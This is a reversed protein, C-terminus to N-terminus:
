KRAANGDENDMDAHKKNIQKNVLLYFATSLRKFRKNNFHRVM